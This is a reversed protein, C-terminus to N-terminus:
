LYYGNVEAFSLSVQEISTYTPFGEDDMLKLHTNGKELWSM